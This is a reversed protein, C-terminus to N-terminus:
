RCGRFCIRTTPRSRPAYDSRARRGRPRGCGRRTGAAVARVLGLYPTDRMYVECGARLTAMGEGIRAAEALLRSKGIGTEGVVEILSGGRDVARGLRSQLYALEDGTRRAAALRGGRHGPQAVRARKGLTVAIVPRSKGKVMFPELPESEFM